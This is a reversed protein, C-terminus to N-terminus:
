KLRAAFAKLEARREAYKQRSYQRERSSVVGSAKTRIKVGYDGGQPLLGYTEALTVMADNM